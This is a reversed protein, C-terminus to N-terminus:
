VSSSFPNYTTSLTRSRKLLYCKMNKMDMHSIIM